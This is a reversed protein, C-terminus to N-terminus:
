PYKYWWCHCNDSMKHFMTRDATNALDQITVFRNLPGKIISRVIKDEAWQQTHNFEDTLDRVTGSPVLLNTDDAYKVLL